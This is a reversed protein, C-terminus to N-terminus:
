CVRACHALRFASECLLARHPALDFLESQRANAEKQKQKKASTCSQIGIGGETVVTCILTKQNGLEVNFKGREIERRFEREKGRFRWRHSQINPPIDIMKPVINCEIPSPEKRRCRSETFLIRPHSSVMRSPFPAVRYRPAGKRIGRSHHEFGPIPIWGEIKYM